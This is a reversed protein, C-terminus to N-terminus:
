IKVLKATRVEKGNTVKLMYTGTPLSIGDAGAGDWSFSNYGSRTNRSFDAVKRGLVDFVEAQVKTVDPIMNFQISVNDHFPNPSVKIYDILQSSIDNVGTTSCGSVWTPTVSPVSAGEEDQVTIPQVQYGLSDSNVGILLIDACQNRTDITPGAGKWHTNLVPQGGVIPWPGAWRFVVGINYINVGIPMPGSDVDATAVVSFYNTATPTLDMCISYLTDGSVDTMSGIGDAQGWRGVVADWDSSITKYGAGAHVYISDGASDLVCSGGGGEQVMVNRNLTIQLYGTNLVTQASMGLYCIMCTILLKIKKM